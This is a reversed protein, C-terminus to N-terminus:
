QTSDGGTKVRQLLQRGQQLFDRGRLLAMVAAFAAFFIVGKLFLPAWLGAVPFATIGAWAACVAVLCAALPAAFTKAFSITVYRPVLRYALIVGLGMALGVCVAAGQAGWKWTLLPCLVLVVGAQAMQILGATKPRGIATFLEGTNDFAPRLSAYILLLRLLPIMPRWTEGFLLVVFEPALLAMGVALPLTLVIIGGMTSSFAESLKDKDDQVRSYLPFAVKAVVHAIMTTPLCALAYARAYYGLQETSLITGVLFDDFKLTILTAMGAVWLYAGFGLYWRIMAPDFRPRISRKCARAYGIAGLLDAIVQRVLLAGLGAGGLALVIGVLDSVVTTLVNVKMVPAFRLDKEMVLRPTHGLSQFLNSGCLVLLAISTFRDYGARILPTFAIALVLVALATLIHLFRHTALARDLEDRRHILAHNYGFGGLKQGLVVFFMALALIGFNEPAILRMLLINTFFNVAQVLYTGGAVWLTGRAAKGALSM